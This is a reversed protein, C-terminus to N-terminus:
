PEREGNMEKFDTSMNATNVGSDNTLEESIWDDTRKSSARLGSHGVDASTPVSRASHIFSLKQSMTVNM